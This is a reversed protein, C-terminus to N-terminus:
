EAECHSRAMLTWFDSLQEECQKESKGLSSRRTVEGLQQCFLWGWLRGLWAPSNVLTMALRYVTAIIFFELMGADSPMERM